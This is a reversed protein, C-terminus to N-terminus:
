VWQAADSVNEDSLSVARQLKIRPIFKERNSWISDRGVQTVAELHFIQNYLLFWKRTDRRFLNAKNYVKVSLPRKGLGSGSM